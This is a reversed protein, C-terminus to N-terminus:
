PIVKGWVESLFYFCDSPFEVMKMWWIEGIEQQSQRGELELPDLHGQKQECGIRGRTSQIEGVRVKELFKSKCVERKEGADIERKRISWVRGCQVHKSITWRQLEEKFWCGMWSSDRNEARWQLKRMTSFLIQRKWKYPSEWVQICVLSVRLEKLFLGLGLVCGLGIIDSCWYKLAGRPPKLQWPWSDDMVISHLSVSALFTDTKEKKLLHQIKLTYVVAKFLTTAKSISTFFM